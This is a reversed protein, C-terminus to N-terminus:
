NEGVAAKVNRSKNIRGVELLYANTAEYYTDIIQELFLPLNEIFIPNRNADLLIASTKQQLLLTSVFSILLQDIVFSGGNIAYVLSADLKLQANKKQLNLAMRFKSSELAEQLRADLASNIDQNSM